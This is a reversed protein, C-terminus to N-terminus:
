NFILQNGTEDVLCNGAEDTAVSYAPKQAVDAYTDLWGDAYTDGIGTSSLMFLTTGGENKVQGTIKASDTMWVMKIINAPCDVINGNCDVMAVDYREKDTPAISTSNTHRWRFVPYLRAVTFQKRAVEKDGVYAIAVYDEKEILRIDLSISTNTISDVENSIDATVEELNNLGKVHYLKLTYDGGTYESPGKYLTVQFSRKYSNGDIALNRTEDSAQILGHAVKYDYLLLKDKFPDYQIVQDDTMALSYKDESSDTTSLVIPDTTISINAGLRKDVIVGTFTLEVRTNPNINRSITIEGRTNTGSVDISYLGQWDPLTTIDVGNVLWKMSALMENGYPYPVSGDNANARVLPAFVSPTLTRNPEFTNTKARYVQTMPSGPTKCLISVAVTLPAFDKRLRLKSTIM